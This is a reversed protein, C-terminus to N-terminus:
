INLGMIEENVWNNILALGVTLVVALGVAGVPSLIFVGVGTFVHRM